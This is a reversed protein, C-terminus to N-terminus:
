MDHYGSPRGTPVVIKGPMCIVETAMQFASGCKPVTILRFSTHQRTGAHNPTM